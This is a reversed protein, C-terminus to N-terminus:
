TLFHDAILRYAHAWDDAKHVGDGPEPALARFTHNAMINVLLCHPVHARVSNLNYFIDDLFAVPASRGASLEAVVPGKAEETAIMPFFLGNKDLLRRRIEAHRPPMATLFVIDAQGSLASLAAHAGEVPNQWQDQGAFFHEQFQDVLDDPAVSGDALHRINGHLRFSDAVLQHDRSRLYADFPGLFELVVEDIDCVVLPRNAAANAFPNVDM